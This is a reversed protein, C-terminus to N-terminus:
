AAVITELAAISNRLAAIKNETTDVQKLPRKAVTMACSLSIGFRKALVEYTEPEADSILGMRRMFIEYNRGGGTIHCVRDVIRSLEARAEVLADQAEHLLEPTLANGAVTDLLSGDSGDGVPSQLSVSTGLPMALVVDRVRELTEGTQEALSEMSPTKGTHANEREIIKKMKWHLQRLKVPIHIVSGVNLAALRIYARIWQTAHTSFVVEETHDFKAAATMLGENGEQILDELPIKSWVYKLAISFVLRLNREVLINRAAIDGALVRRSLDIEEQQTLRVFRGINRKYASVGDDLRARAADAEETNSSDEFVFFDQSGVTAVVNDDYM